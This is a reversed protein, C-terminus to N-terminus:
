PTVSVVFTLTQKRYMGSIEWCGGTPLDVGVLMFQGSDGADGHTAASAALPAAEADLRRGMVSLAPVPESELDYDESWFFVKQTYGADTHPLAEWAGGEPLVTWLSPTGYWFQGEGASTPAVGPPSFDPDPAQTVPCEFAKPAGAQVAPACSTLLLSILLLLPFLKRVNM